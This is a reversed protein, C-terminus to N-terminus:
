LITKNDRTNVFNDLEYIEISAGRPAPGEIGIPLQGKMM